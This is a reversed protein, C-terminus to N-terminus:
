IVKLEKVDEWNLGYGIFQELDGELVSWGNPLEEPVNKCNFYWTQDAITQPVSKGYTIGLETATITDNYPKEKTWYNWKRRLNKM